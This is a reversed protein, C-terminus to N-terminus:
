GKKSYVSYVVDALEEKTVPHRVTVKHGDNVSMISTTEFECNDSKLYQIVKWRPFFCDKLLKAGLVQAMQMVEEPIPGGYWAM